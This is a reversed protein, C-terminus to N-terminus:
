DTPQDETLVEKIIERARGQRREPVRGRLKWGTIAQPKVGMRRALESTNGDCALILKDLLNM